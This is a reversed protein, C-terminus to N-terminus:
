KRRDERRDAAKPLFPLATEILWCFIWRPLIMSSLFFAVVVLYFANLLGSAGSMQHVLCGMRGCFVDTGRLYDGLHVRGLTTPSNECPVM